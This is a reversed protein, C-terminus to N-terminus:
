SGCQVVGGSEFVVEGAESRVILRGPYNVTEYGSKEGAVQEIQLKFSYASGAYRQRAGLPLEASNMDAEFREVRDNIKLYGADNQAIALAGIGGGAPAFSCGAGFLNEREIDAFTVPALDLPQPASDEGATMGADSQEQQCASLWGLLAASILLKRRM